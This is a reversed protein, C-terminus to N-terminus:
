NLGVCLAGVCFCGRWHFAVVPQIEQLRHHTLSSPLGRAAERSIPAYVCSPHWSAQGFSIGLNPSQWAPPEVSKWGSTRNPDPHSAYAGLIASMPCLWSVPNVLM